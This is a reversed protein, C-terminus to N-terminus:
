SGQLLQTIFKIHAHMLEHLDNIQIKLSMKESQLPPFTSLRECRREASAQSAQTTGIMNPRIINLHM